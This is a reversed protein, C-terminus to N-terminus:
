NHPPPPPPPSLLIFAWGKGSGAYTKQFEQPTLWEYANGGPYNNDLIVFYRDSAAVLSVMHAIHGGGYRGTPSFSYTVGPMRGSRCAAKLVELDSSEVQVYDPVPVGQEAAIQKVMRDVKEPYGGGPYSRMWDRFNELLPVNQWRAAHSISTFVCLGAGDSGGCNKMHLPEPLDCDIEVGDQSQNGGVFAGVLALSPRDERPGWPRRPKKPKPPTPKVPAPPCPAKDPKDRGLYAVAVAASLLVVALFKNPQM